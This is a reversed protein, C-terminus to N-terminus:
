VAMISDMKADLLTQLSQMVSETVGEIEKGNQFAEDKSVGAIKGDKGKKVVDMAKRRVQRIRQRCSEAKKKLQKATQQRVDMSVRPLPVKVNGGEEVQPNLELALQVAKGVSKAVMPDFCTIQALTPSVIVVQGVAKLPTMSGYANVMLDDFMEATPEAGRITKLSEEFKGLIKMMKEKIAIPDPLSPEADTEEEELDDDLDLFDDDGGDDNNDDQVSLSQSDEPNKKGKQKREKKKKRREQAAEREPRHSMEELTELHKGMKSSHKYRKLTSSSSTNKWAFPAAHHNVFLPKTTELRSTNSLSSNSFVTTTNTNTVVTSLSRVVANTAMKKTSTLLRYSRFMTTAKRRKIFFRIEKLHDVSLWHVPLPFPFRSNPNPNQISHDQCM